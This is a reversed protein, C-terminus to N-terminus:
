PRGERDWTVLLDATMTGARELPARSRELVIATLAGMTLTRQRVAWDLPRALGGGRAPREFFREVERIFSEIEERAPHESTGIEILCNNYPCGAFGNGECWDALVDWFEVLARLPESGRSELERTVVDLWRAAPSRLWAVILGDKSPFHRYFTAKAVKARHIM